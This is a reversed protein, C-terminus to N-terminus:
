RSSRKPRLEQVKEAASEAVLALEDYPGTDALAPASEVMTM